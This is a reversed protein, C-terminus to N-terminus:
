LKVVRLLRVTRFLKAFKMVRLMPMSQTGENTAGKLILSVVPEVMAIFDVPFWTKGYRAAVLKPRLELRGTASDLYGTRFNLVIDVVWFVDIATMFGIWATPMSKETGAVFSIEFPIYLVQVLLFVLALVDWTVRWRADPKTMCRYTEEPPPAVISYSVGLNTSGGPPPFADNTAMTGCKKYKSKNERSKVTMVTTSESNVTTMPRSEDANKAAVAATRFVQEAHEVV